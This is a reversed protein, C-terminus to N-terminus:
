PVCGLDQAQFREIHSPPREAPTYSPDVAVVHRRDHSREISKRELTAFRTDDNGVRDLSLANGEHLSRKKPMIAAWVRRFVGIRHAFEIDFGLRPAPMRLVTTRVSTSCARAPTSM